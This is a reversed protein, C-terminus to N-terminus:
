FTQKKLLLHHQILQRFTAVTSITSSVGFLMNDYYTLRAIYVIEWERLVFSLILCALFFFYYHGKMANDLKSPCLYKGM